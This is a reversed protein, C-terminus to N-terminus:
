QYLAAPGESDGAERIGTNVGMFSPTTKQLVDVGVLDSAAPVSMFKMRHKHPELKHKHIGAQEEHM